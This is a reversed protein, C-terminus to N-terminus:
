AASSILESVDPGVQRDGDAADQCQICRPAWPVAALRKSSIESDCDVCVGFSGDHVRGLAARVQRLLAFERDLNRIELDRESLYQIQDMQEPSKEISIVDRRRLAQAVEAQKRELTEQFLITDV